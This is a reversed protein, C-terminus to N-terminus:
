GGSKQGYAPDVKILATAALSPLTAICVWLFFGPYGLHAQISGSIMGPLMMGLAMFGTCIAYHATRLPGAAIMMMYVVFATFGFGYGFQEVVVAASIPWSAVPQAYALWVYALNPAHMAVLMPWLMRKLGYRSVLWGGLLGGVTLAIIGHFGYIVGVQATSLGLGGVARADLLFPQVLKVLQAEGLRYLLLYALAIGIGPKRFFATFAALWDAGASAGSVAPGDGAPRPLLLQHYLAALVFLVAPPVFVLSWALHVDGTSEELRGALYVLGGQGAINALRFFTSRVGVFAAQDHSSLALLYFGDSAIDHTAASFALLWFVALTWRFFDPGPVTLAVAALGAGIFFQLAVIWGRKTRFREVFPAWLPKIVWPLYLWSTYFALDTNSVGLKKYMPVSLMVVAVYPVAQCFYLTPVWRWPRPSAPTTHDTM